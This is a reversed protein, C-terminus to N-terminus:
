LVLREAEVLRAAIREKLGLLDASERAALRALTPLLDRRDLAVLIQRALAEAREVASECAIQAAAVAVAARTEGRKAVDKGARLWAAEATYALAFLDALRTLVMQNATAGRAGEGAAAGLALLLTRKLNAV